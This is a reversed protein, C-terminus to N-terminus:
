LRGRVTEIAVLPDESTAHIRSDCLIARGFEASQGMGSLLLETDRMLLLSYLKSLLLYIFCLGM